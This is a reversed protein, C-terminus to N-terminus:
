GKEDPTGDLWDVITRLALGWNGGQCHNEAHERATFMRATVSRAHKLMGIQRKWQATPVYHDESGALLLVDQRVSASVDATRYRTSRQLFDFATTTGTAHRGQRVGWQVVPSRRAARAVIWNVGRAARLRLMLKLVPGLLANTQRLTVDLFDTLVDFAVVREVRPELAAARMALCGGLSLGVLAAREVGFYGLVASM